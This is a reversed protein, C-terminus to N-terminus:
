FCSWWAGKRKLAIAMAGEPRWLHTLVARQVKRLCALRHLEAIRRHRMLLADLDHTILNRGYHNTRHFTMIHRTWTYRERLPLHEVLDRVWWGFDEHRTHIHQM